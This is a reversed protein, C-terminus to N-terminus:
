YLMVINDESSGNAGKGSKLVGWCWLEGRIRRRLGIVRRGLELGELVGMGLVLMGMDGRMTAQALGAQVRPGRNGRARAATTTRSSPVAHIANTSPPAGSDVIMILSDAGHEPTSLNLPHFARFRSITSVHTGQLCYRGSLSNVLALIPNSALLFIFELCSFFFSGQRWRQPTQPPLKIRSRSIQETPCSRHLWRM